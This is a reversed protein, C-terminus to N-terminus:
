LTSPTGRLAVRWCIQACYWRRWKAVAIDCEGAMGCELMLVGIGGVLAEGLCSFCEVHKM